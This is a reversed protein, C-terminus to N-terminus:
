RRYTGGRLFSLSQGHQCCSHCCHRDTPTVTGELAVQGDVLRVLVLAEVACGKVVGDVDGGAGTVSLPVADEVVTATLLVVLLLEVELGLRVPVPTPSALLALVETGLAVGDEDDDDLREAPAIAPVATPARMPTAIRM